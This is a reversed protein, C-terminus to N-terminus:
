DSSTNIQSFPSVDDNEYEPFLAFWKELFIVMHEAM